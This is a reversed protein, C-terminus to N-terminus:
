TQYITTLFLLTMNGIPQINHLKQFHKLLTAIDPALMRVEGSLDKLITSLFNQAEGEEGTLSAIRVLKQLLNVSELQSQAALKLAKEEQYVM